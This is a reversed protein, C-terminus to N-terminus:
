HTHLLSTEYDGIRHNRRKRTLMSQSLEHPHDNFFAPLSDTRVQREKRAVGPMESLVHACITFFGIAM